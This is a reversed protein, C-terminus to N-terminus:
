GDGRDGPNLFTKGVLDIGQQSGNTIVVESVTTNIGKGAMLEVIYERM